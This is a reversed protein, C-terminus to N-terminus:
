KKKSTDLAVNWFCWPQPFDKTERGDGELLNFTTMDDDIRPFALAFTRISNGHIWIKEPSYQVGYAQVLPFQRSFDLSVIRFAHIHNPPYLVGGERLNPASNDMGFSLTVANDSVVAQTIVFGPDTDCDKHLSYTGNLSIASHRSSSAPAYIFIAVLGVVIICLLSFGLRPREKAFAAAAGFLGTIIAGVIATQSTSTLNNWWSLSDNM